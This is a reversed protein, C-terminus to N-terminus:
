KRLSRPRKATTVILREPCRRAYRGHRFAAALRMDYDHAVGRVNSQAVHRDNPVRQWEARDASGRESRRVADVRASVRVRWGRQRLCVGQLQMRAGAVVSETQGEKGDPWRMMFRGKQGM